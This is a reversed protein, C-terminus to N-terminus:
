IFPRGHYTRDPIIRSIHGICDFLPDASEAVRNYPPDTNRCKNSIRYRNIRLLANRETRCSVFVSLEVSVAIVRDWLSYAVAAKRPDAIQRLVREPEKDGPDSEDVVIEGTNRKHYQHDHVAQHLPLFMYGVAGKNDAAASIGRHRKGQEQREIRYQGVAPPHPNQLLISVNSVSRPISRPNFSLCSVIIVM